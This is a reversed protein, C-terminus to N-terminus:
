AGGCIRGVSPSAATMRRRVGTGTHREFLLEHAKTVRYVRKVNAVAARQERHLRRILANV